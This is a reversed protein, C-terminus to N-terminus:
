PGGRRGERGRCAGAFPNRNRLHVNAPYRVTNIERLCQEALATLSISRLHEEMGSSM